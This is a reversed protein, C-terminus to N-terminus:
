TSAFTLASRGTEPGVEYIVLPENARLVTEAKRRIYEAIGRGYWPRFLESPTHWLQYFKLGTTQERYLEYLRRNYADQDRLLSFDLPASRTTFINVYRQFYGDRENYLCDHIFDRTLEPTRTTKLTGSSYRRFRPRIMIPPVFLVILDPIKISWM